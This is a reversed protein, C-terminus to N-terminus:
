TTSATAVDVDGGPQSGLLCSVTAQVVACAPRLTRQEVSKSRPPIGAQEGLVSNIKIVAVARPTYWLEM